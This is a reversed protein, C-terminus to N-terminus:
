ATHIEVIDRDGLVHDPGVREGEFKSTPGWIRSYRYRNALDSHISKALEGVTSGARIVFPLHSPKSETPEKTYVRIIELSRFLTGGVSKLGQGTLCSTFMIPMPQPLADRLDLSAQITGPLDVKNGILVTPKYSAANEFVADEVDDVTADGYIRVLANRIGYSHLLERIQTPRISRQAGSTAIRIEGSGKAKVIEVRSLPKQTSISVEQLAGTISRLQGLPNASLDVVIILGDSSRLLDLAESQIQYRGERGPQLAPSEVLQLQVDEHQLMGPAPRQTTYKYSGVTVQANTLVRLLSSRGSNTLGVMIVQAAGEREIQWDSRGSGRKGRRATIEEKLEAIKTKVQARLRENGKHKPIASLFEQYAQLKEKANRAVQAAQWKAQAEATLNAPM